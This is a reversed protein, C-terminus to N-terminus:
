KDKRAHFVEQRKTEFANFANTSLGVPIQEDGKVLKGWAEETFEKLPMGM